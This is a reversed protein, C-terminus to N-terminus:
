RVPEVEGTSLNYYGGIIDIKKQAILESLLRSHKLQDIVHRVNAKVAEKVTDPLGPAINKIAPGIKEAIAPIDQTNRNLVAQVAGCNEHGLVLIVAANLYVAAFDVSDLEVPGVVNGAVRVVFLDGIGQDFVIEPSVRSDSCGLIIAFPTQTARVAERSEQNRNPHELQDTVYRRNGEMLKKIAEEPSMREGSYLSGILFLAFFISIGFGCSTRKRNM